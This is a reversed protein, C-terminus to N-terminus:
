LQRRLKRIGYAVVLLAAVILVAATGSLAGVIEDNMM